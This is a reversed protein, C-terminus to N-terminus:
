LDRSGATEPVVEERGSLRTRCDALAAAADSTASPGAGVLRNGDGAGRGGAEAALWAEGEALLQRVEGLLEEASAKSSQLAEIRELRRM